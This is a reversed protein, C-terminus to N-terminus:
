NKDKNLHLTLEEGFKTCSVIMGKTTLNYSWIRKVEFQKDISDKNKNYSIYGLRTMRLHKEKLTGLNGLKM